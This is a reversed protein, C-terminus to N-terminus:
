CPYVDMNSELKVGLIYYTERCSQYCSGPEISFVDGNCDNEGSGWFRKFWGGNFPNGIRWRKRGGNVTKYNDNDDLDFNVSENSFDLDFVTLKQTQENKDAFVIKNEALVKVLHGSEIGDKSIKTVEYREGSDDVMMETSTIIYDGKYFENIFTMTENEYRFASSISKTNKQTDTTETSSDDSSCAIFSTALVAVGLVNLAIKKMNKLM